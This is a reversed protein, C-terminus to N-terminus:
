NSIIRIMKVASLSNMKRQKCTPTLYLFILNIKFRSIARKMERKRLKINLLNIRVFLLPWSESKVVIRLLPLVNCIISHYIPIYPINFLNFSQPSCQLKQPLNILYMWCISLNPFINCITCLDSISFHDYRLIRGNPHINSPPCLSLCFWLLQIFLKNEGGVRYISHTANNRKEIVEM